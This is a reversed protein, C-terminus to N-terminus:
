LPVLVSVYGLRFLRKQRLSFRFTGQMMMMVMMMLLVRWGLQGMHCWCIQPRPKTRSTSEKINQQRNLAQAALGIRNSIQTYMDSDASIYSDLYRFNQAEEIEAGWVSVKFLVWCAWHFLSDLWFFIMTREGNFWVSVSVDFHSFKCCSMGAHQFVGVCFTEMHFVTWHWIHMGTMMMMM